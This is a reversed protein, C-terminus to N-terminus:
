PGKKVQFAEPCDVEHRVKEGVLPGWTQLCSRACSHCPLPLGKHTLLRSETGVKSKGSPSLWGRRAPHEPGDAVCLGVPCGCAAAPPGKNALSVKTVWAACAGRCTAMPPLQERLQLTANPIQFWFVEPGDPGVKLLSHGLLPRSLKLSAPAM